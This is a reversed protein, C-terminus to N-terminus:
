RTWRHHEHLYSAVLVLAGAGAAVLVGTKVRAATLQQYAAQCDALTGPMEVHVEDNPWGSVFGFTGEVIQAMTAYDADTGGIIDLDVASGCEHKSTGPAAVPLLNGAADVNTDRANWLALQVAASRTGGRPPIAVHKGTADQIAQMMPLVAARLEPRMGVIRLVEAPTLYAM